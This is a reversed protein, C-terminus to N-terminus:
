HIQLAYLPVDLNEIDRITSWKGVPRIENGLWVHINNNGSTIVEVDALAPAITGANAFCKINAGGNYWVKVFDTRDGCAIQNIAAAPSAPLLLTMAAATAATLWLRQISRKKM